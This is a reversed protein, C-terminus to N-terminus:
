WGAKKQLFIIDFAIKKICFAFNQVIKAVLM